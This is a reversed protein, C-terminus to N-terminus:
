YHLLISASFKVISTAVYGQFFCNPPMKPVFRVPYNYLMNSLLLPFLGQITIKEHLKGALLLLFINHYNAMCTLTFYTLFINSFYSRATHQHSPGTSFFCTPICCFSSLIAPPTPWLIPALIPHFARSQIARPLRFHRSPCYLTGCIIGPLCYPQFDAHERRMGEM